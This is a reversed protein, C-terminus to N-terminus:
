VLAQAHSGTDHHSTYSISADYVFFVRQTATLTWHVVILAILIALTTFATGYHQAGIVFRWDIDRPNWSGLPQALQAELDRSAHLSSTRLISIGSAKRAGQAAVKTLDRNAVALRQPNCWEVALLSCQLDPLRVSSSRQLEAAPQQQNRCPLLSGNTFNRGSASCSVKAQM